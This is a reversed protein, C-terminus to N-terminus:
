RIRDPGREHSRAVAEASLALNYIRFEDFTGYLGPTDPYLSRGLWATTDRLESLATDWPTSGALEGDL